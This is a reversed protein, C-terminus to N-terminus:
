KGADPKPADMEALLRDVAADMAEGRVNMSRIVGKPDLVYITPFAKVGWRGVIGNRVGAPGNWFSRWTLEAALRPRVKALDRDTDVGLLVFPRDKLREVLSREHPHMARCPGCWDGWFDLVVVKGRHDSLRFPVGDLDFGAIEPAVDGIALGRRVITTREIAAALTKDKTLKKAKELLREAMAIMTDDVGDAQQMCIVAHGFMARAQLEPPGSAELVADLFKTCREDGLYPALNPVLDLVPGLELSRAHSSALTDFAKGVEPGVFGHRVIWTLFPVAADKGACAEAAAEFRPVFEAVAADIGAQKMREFEATLKNYEPNQAWLVSACSLM